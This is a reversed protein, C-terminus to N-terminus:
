RRVEASALARNGDTTPPYIGKGYSRQAKQLYRERHTLGSSDHAHKM